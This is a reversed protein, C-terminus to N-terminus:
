DSVLSKSGLSKVYGIETILLNSIHTMFDVLAFYHLFGIKIEEAVFWGSKLWYEWPSLFHLFV